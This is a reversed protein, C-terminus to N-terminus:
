PREKVRESGLQVAGPQPNLEPPSGPDHVALAPVSEKASISSTIAFLLGVIVNSEAAPTLITVQFPLRLYIEIYIDREKNYGQRRPDKFVFLDLEEYQLIPRRRHHLCGSVLLRSHSRGKDLLHWPKPWSVQYNSHHRQQQEWCHSRSIPGQM